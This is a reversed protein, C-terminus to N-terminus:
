LATSRHSIKNQLVYRAIQCFSGYFGQLGTLMEYAICALAYQDSKESTNGSPQEPAGYTSIEIPHIDGTKELSSLAHLHFDTLLVDDQIYLLVNQPKLTGTSSISSILTTLAQGIQTLITLRRGVRCPTDLTVIKYATM